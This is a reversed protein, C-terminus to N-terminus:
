ASELEEVLGKGELGSTSVPAGNAQSRETATSSQPEQQPQTAMPRAVVFWIALMIANVLFVASPSSWNLVAGGVVGGLFAGAFQSSSYVGSAAGRLGRPAMKSVQSPLSAELLNFAVFFVFVSILLPWRQGGMTALALEAVILLVIAGLFVPKFQGRREAMMLFPLMIIFAGILTPLYVAGHHQRDIGAAGELLGPVVVFNAMLVMHLVLIGWDLRLLETNKLAASLPPRQIVVPQDLNPIALYLIGLGVVALMATLWFVGALGGYGTVLPGLILAISFSLGISVGIAAMAKSRNQESTADGVLALLAGAIAGSGQLFRGFILGYVSDSIAAIVSGLAFLLLGIAIIPRRGWRDSWWGFPIQLLAQSLGYAGLAMGLLFPTSYQYEAGYLTLVPLVMFLGLMRFLYVCAIAAVSRGQHPLTNATPIQGQPASISM